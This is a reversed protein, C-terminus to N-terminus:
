GQGPMFPADKAHRVAGVAPAQRGDAPFAGFDPLYLDPLRDRALFEQADPVRRRLNPTPSPSHREAGVALVQGRAHQRVRELEPVDRGAALDAGELPVGRRDVAQ